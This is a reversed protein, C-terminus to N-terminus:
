TKEGLFFDLQEKSLNKNEIDPMPAWFRIRDAYPWPKGLHAFYTWEQTQGLYSVANCGVDPRPEEVDWIGLVLFHGYVHNKWDESLDEFPLEKSIDHWELAPLLAELKLDPDSM